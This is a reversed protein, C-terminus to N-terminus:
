DGLDSTCASKQFGVAEAVVVVDDLLVRLVGNVM